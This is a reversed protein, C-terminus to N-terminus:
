IFSQGVQCVTTFDFSDPIMFLQIWVDALRCCYQMMSIPTIDFVHELQWPTCRAPISGAAYCRDAIYPDSHKYVIFFLLCTNGIVDVSKCAIYRWPHIDIM